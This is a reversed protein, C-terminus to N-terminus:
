RQIAGFPRVVSALVPDISSDRLVALSQNFPNFIIRELIILESTVIGMTIMDEGRQLAFLFDDYSTMQIIADKIKAMYQKLDRRLADEASLILPHFTGGLVSYDTADVYM